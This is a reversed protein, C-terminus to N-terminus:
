EDSAHANSNHTIVNAVVFSHTTPVKFDFTAEPERATVSEVRDYLYGAARIERLRNLPGCEAWELDLITNLSQYSLAARAEFGKYDRTEFNHLKTTESADYLGEVVLGCNPILDMNANTVKCDFLVQSESKRVDSRFGIRAVYRRASAGYLDLRWYDNDPYAAVKLEKLVSLIGFHAQLVTKVEYLLKWSASEVQIGAPNISCECDFYGQLVFRIQATSLQRVFPGLHKNKAVGPVWGMKEYFDRVNAKSNFHYDFSGPSEKAYIRPEVALTLGGQVKINSLVVPDNNTVGIRYENFSGDALLVGFFYLGEDTSESPQGIPVRYERHCVVYDGPEIKEIKRWVWYGARNMILLRHSATGAIVNGYVTKVTFLPRRGNFTIASATEGEGDRNILQYSVSLTKSSCTTALENKQLVEHFYLLGELTVILSDAPLCQEPDADEIEIDNNDAKHSSGATELELAYPMDAVDFFM